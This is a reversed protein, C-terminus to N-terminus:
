NRIVFSAIRGNGRFESQPVPAELLLEVNKLSFPPETLVIGSNWVIRSDRGHPKDKNAKFTGPLGPQDETVIVWDFQKLRNLVSKVQANSLHQFVQRVLCLQAKPLEDRTIDLCRFQVNDAAFNAQNSQILPEVVDVGIYNIGARAIRRGVRFDGCGLDVVSRIGHKEIFRTVCDTYPSAAEEASGPGSNFPHHPDVTEGKEAWLHEEYVKTFLDKLDMRKDNVQIVYRKVRRSLRRVPWPTHEKIRSLIGM